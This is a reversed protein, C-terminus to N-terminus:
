ETTGLIKRMMDYAPKRTGDARLLGFFNESDSLDTGLDKYSYWFFGGIWDAGTISSVASQLTYAQLEEDVHGADQKDSYTTIGATDGPGATPAGYETIWIKKDTDGNAQMISRISTSQDAMQSWASWGYNTSSPAPYSYPHLGLVDFYPKAGAKYLASLFDRPAINSSQSEAPSLGASLVQATPNAAKIAPYASKLMDAYKAANPKPQWFKTINPENWVEWVGIDQAYRTAAQGAFTAFNSNLAPGCSPSRCGIPRAWGPTYALTGMLKLGHAKAASVIADTKAWDYTLANKAQVDDWGVDVRVWSVGVAKMDALEADLQNAPMGYLTNGVSIGFALPQSIKQAEPIVQAETLDHEALVAHQWTTTAQHVTLIAAALIFLGAFLWLKHPKKAQRKHGAAKYHTYRAM